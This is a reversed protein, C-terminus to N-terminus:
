MLLAVRLHLKISPPRPAVAANLKRGIKPGSERRSCFFLSFCCGSIALCCQDSSRVACDDCNSNAEWRRKFRTRRRRSEWRARSCGKGCRAAGSGPDDDAYPIELLSDGQAEITGTGCVPPAIPKTRGQTVTTRKAPLTLGQRSTALKSISGFMKSM